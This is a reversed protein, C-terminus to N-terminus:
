YQGLLAKRSEPPTEELGGIFDGLQDGILMVIDHDLEVYQRRSTKDSSMWRGEEHESGTLISLCRNPPRQGRLFLQDLDIEIGLQRLNAFTDEKQNASIISLSLLYVTPFRM